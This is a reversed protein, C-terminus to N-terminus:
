ELSKRIADRTDDYAEAAEDKLRDSVTREAFPNSLLPADRGINVGFWVGVGAGILLGVLLGNLFKM